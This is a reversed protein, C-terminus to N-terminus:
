LPKRRRTLLGLGGMSALLLALPTPVPVPTVAGGQENSSGLNLAKVSFQMRSNPSGGLGGGEFNFRVTGKISSITALEDLAMIQSFKGGGEVAQFTQDVAMGNVEAITVVTSENVFGAKGDDDGKLVLRLANFELNLDTDVSLAGPAGAGNFDLSAIDGDYGIMFDYSTGSAGFTFNESEIPNNDGDRIFVDHGSLRGTGTQDRKIETTFIQTWILPTVTRLSAAEAFGSMAVTAVLGALVIRM